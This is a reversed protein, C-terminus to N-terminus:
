AARKQVMELANIDKSFYPDWVCSAYELMPRVLHTYAICKVEQSCRYLNRRLFNLMRTAKNTINELHSRFSMTSELLVGLYPHKTVLQLLSDNIYSDYSLTTLLRSCRLVDCGSQVPVFESQQGDVVMNQFRQTLWTNLWKLINSRIGYNHLKKLLRQHPVMDFVKILHRWGSIKPIAALIDELVIILQTECSYGSRFGFQHDELIHHLNLHEIISHYLIHEM